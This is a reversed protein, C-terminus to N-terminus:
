AYSISVHSSNLRTSKRDKLIKNRTSDTTRSRPDIVRNPINHNSIIAPNDRAPRSSHIHGALVLKHQGWGGRRQKILEQLVHRTNRTGQFPRCNGELGHGLLQGDGVVAPVPAVSRFPTTTTR